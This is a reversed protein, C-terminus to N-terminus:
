DEGALDLQAWGEEQAHYGGTTRILNQGKFLFTMRVKTGLIKFSSAEPDIPGFLDITKSFRKSEPLFLDLVLQM